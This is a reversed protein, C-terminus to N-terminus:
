NIRVIFHTFITEDDNVRIFVRHDKVKLKFHM